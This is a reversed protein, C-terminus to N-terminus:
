RLDARYLQIKLSILFPVVPGSSTCACLLHYLLMHHFINLLQPRDEVDYSLTPHGFCSILPFSCIFIEFGQRYFEADTAVALGPVDLFWTHLQIM